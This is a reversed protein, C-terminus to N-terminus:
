DVCVLRGDRKTFWAHCHCDQFGCFDLVFETCCDSKALGDWLQVFKVCGVTGQPIALSKLPAPLRDKNQSSFPFFRCKRRDVKSM